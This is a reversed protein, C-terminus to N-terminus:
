NLNKSDLTYLWARAEEEDGFVEVPFVERFSRSYSQALLRQALNEVLIAVGRIPSTEACNPSIRTDHEEISSFPSMRVLLPIRGTFVPISHFIKKLNNRDELTLSAGPKLNMYLVGDDHLEIIAKENEWKDIITNESM